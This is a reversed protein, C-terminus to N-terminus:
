LIPTKLTKYIFSGGQLEVSNERTPGMKKLLNYNEAKDVM